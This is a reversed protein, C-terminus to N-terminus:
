FDCHLTCGQAGSGELQLLSHQFPPARYVRGEYRTLRGFPQESSPDQLTCGLCFFCCPECQFGLILGALLVFARALVMSNPDRAAGRRVMHVVGPHSGARAPGAKRM